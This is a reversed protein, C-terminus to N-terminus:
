AQSIGNVDKSATSDAHALKTPADAGSLKRSLLCEVLYPKSECASKFEDFTITGDRDADVQEFAESLDLAVRDADVSTNTVAMSLVSMLEDKDLGGSGDKDYVSFCFKLSELGPGQLAALGSLLEAQDVKGDGNDDFLHFMREVPVGSFGLELMIQDLQGVNEIVGDHEKTHNDFTTRILKLDDSTFGEPKLSKAIAELKDKRKNNLRAGWMVAYAAAKLKRRNNFQKHKDLAIPAADEPTRSTIWPHKLVDCMRIRRKVNVEIMLSILNKAQDSINDWEPVHFEYRGERIEKQVDIRTRGVFPPYGCLLIYLVVGLSWVDCAPSYRLSLV